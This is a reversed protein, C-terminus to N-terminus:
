WRWQQLPEVGVYQGVNGDDAFAMRGLLFQLAGHLSDLFELLACFYREM